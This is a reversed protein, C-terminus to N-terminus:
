VNEECNNKLMEEYFIDVLIPNLAKGKEKFLIDMAAHCDIAERYSRDSTLADYIDAVSIIQAIMPIEDGILGEPYGKGNYKEHHYLVGFKAIKFKEIKNLLKYGNLSHTKIVEFELNTLKGTKNLIDSAISIKGVDHLQAALELDDMNDFGIAEGLMVAYKAVSVSHHYTYSDNMEVTEVLLNIMSIYQQDIINSNQRVELIRNEIDGSMLNISKTLESMEPMIRSNYIDLKVHYEGRSIQKVIQIIEVLKKSMNKINATVIIVAIISVVTIIMLTVLTSINYMMTFNKISFLSNLTIKNNKDLVYTSSIQNFSPKDNKEVTSTFIMSEVYKSSLMKKLDSLEDNAIKRGLIYSGTPNTEENYLMPSAVLILPEGEYWIIERSEENNEMAQKYVNLSKVNELIIEGYSRVYKDNEDSIFLYDINLSENDVIYGTSNDYLWEFNGVNIAQVTDTWVAHSYILDELDKYNENFYFNIQEEKIGRYEEKFESLIYRNVTFTFFIVIMISILAIMIVFRRMKKYM